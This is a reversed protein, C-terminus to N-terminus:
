ASRRGNDKRGAAALRGMKLPLFDLTTRYGRQFLELKERPTHSFDTASFSGVDIVITSNWDSDNVFERSITNLFAQILLTLYDVLPLWSRRGRGPVSSGQLRFCFVPQLGEGWCRRLAEEALISGDVLLHGQHKRFSFLLPIGMSFRVATAVRMRPTQERDFVVPRSTLVDTAVVHLDLEMEEFTAGGLREDMWREFHAGSSLGGHFLLQYLSFGRFQRFDVELALQKIRAVPLGSAVLAAVISGGSVGVIRDFGLGLDALAQLVGVHAPLRTGGGALIPIIHQGAVGGPAMDGIGEAFRAAPTSLEGAM